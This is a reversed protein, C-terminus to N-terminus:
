GDSGNSPGKGNMGTLVGVRCSNIELCSRHSLVPRKTVVGTLGDAGCGRGIRERSSVASSRSMGCFDISIRESTLLNAVDVIYAIIM